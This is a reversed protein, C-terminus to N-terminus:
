LFNIALIKLFDGLRTVSIRVYRRSRAFKKEWYRTSPNLSM